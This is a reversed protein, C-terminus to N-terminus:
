GPSRGHLGRGHILARCRRGEHASGLDGGPPRESDAGGRDDARGGGGALLVPDQGLEDLSGGAGDGDACTWRGPTWCRETGSWTCGSTTPSPRTWTRRSCGFATASRLRRRPRSSSTSTPSTTSTWAEKWRRTATTWAP